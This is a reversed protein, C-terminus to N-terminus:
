FLRSNVTLMDRRCAEEVKRSKRPQPIKCANWLLPAASSRFGLSNPCRSNLVPAVTVQTTASGAGADAKSLKARLMHRVAGPVAPCDAVILLQQSKQFCQPPGSLYATSHRFSLVAPFVARLVHRAQAEKESGINSHFHPYLHLVSTCLASQFLGVMDSLLVQPLSSSPTPIIYM